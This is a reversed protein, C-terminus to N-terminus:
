ETKKPSTAPESHWQAACFRGRPISLPRHRLLVDLHHRPGVLGDASLTKLAGPVQPMGGYLKVVGGVERVGVSIHPLGSEPFSNLAVHVNPPVPLKTDLLTEVCFSTTTM